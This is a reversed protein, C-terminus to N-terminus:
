KRDIQYIVEKLCIFFALLLWAEIVIFEKVSNLLVLNKETLVM